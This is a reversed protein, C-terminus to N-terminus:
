KKTFAEVLETVNQSMVPTSDGKLLGTDARSFLSNIVLAREKDTVAKKTATKKPAPKKAATAEDATAKSATSRKKPAAKTAQETAKAKKTATKATVNKKTATKRASAKKTPASAEADIGDIDDPKPTSKPASAKKATATKTAM